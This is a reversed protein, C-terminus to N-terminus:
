ETLIKNKARLSKNDEKLMRLERIKEGIEDMKLILNNESVDIGCIQGLRNAIDGIQRKSELYEWSNLSNINNQEMDKRNTSTSTISNNLNYNLM